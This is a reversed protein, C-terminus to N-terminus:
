QIARHISRNKLLQNRFKRDLVYKEENVEMWRLADKKQYFTICFVPLNKRRLLVRFSKKGNARIRETISAM